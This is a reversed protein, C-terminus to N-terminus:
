NENIAIRFYKGPILYEIHEKSYMWSYLIPIEPYASYICIKQANKRSITSKIQNDISKKIQSIRISKLSQFFYRTFLSGSNSSSSKHEPKSSEFCLIHTLTPIAYEDRLRFCDEIFMYPMNLPNPFCCDIAFVIQCEKRCGSVIWDRFDIWNAIENNPLVLGERDLDGHGSFYVFLRDIDDDIVDRINGEFEKFSSINYFLAEKNNFFDLIEVDVYGELIANHISKPIEADYFDSLIYVKFGLQNCHKWALYIDILAGGLSKWETHEYYYFGILLAIKEKRRPEKEM